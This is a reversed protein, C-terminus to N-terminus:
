LEVRDSGAVQSPDDIKNSRQLCEYELHMRNTCHSVIVVKSRRQFECCDCKVDRLGNEIRSVSFPLLKPSTIHKM